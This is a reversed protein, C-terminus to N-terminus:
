ILEVAGKVGVKSIDICQNYNSMDIWEQDTYHEYYESRKKDVRQINNKMEVETKVGVDEPVKDNKLFSSTYDALMDQCNAHLFETFNMPYMTLFEVKGVPFSLPKNLAISLLSGACVIHYSPANECFYKLSTIARGCEQVEDFVILTNNPKITKGVFLGLEFLIRTTNFDIEFISKLSENEEFNIYVMDNYYEKGFEKLIFTKGCQRVGKVILPKKNENDKWNRLSEMITRKM